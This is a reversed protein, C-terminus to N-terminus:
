GGNSPALLLSSVFCEQFEPDSGLPVHEIRSRIAAFTRDPEFLAMKAGILATNGAPEIREEPFPLLGIRRASARNIYNGFAGALFVRRIDEVRIGSRRALISIGAAIAGKALQLERVDAQTVTLGPALAIVCGNLKGSPKVLGLDLAAAVADVLGSGCIGRPEGGGIVSCRMEGGSLAVEWVAGTQARMGASIRGGEFAPGAATSACLLRERNGIVIEGNTGLDILAQTEASEHMGTALIGALIDSGVFGGLNPLFHVRLGGELEVEEWDLRPTEFPYHSLPEVSIGCFLHHMVTNGAIVVEPSDVPALDAILEAVRHRILATLDGGQLVHQIRSMIDAGHAAQPNLATRVGLVHATSLDLMQVVITTTGLDVAIGTGTRPKFRFQSHDSLIAAEFQAIELTCDREARARCALRWGAEIEAASLIAAEEPVPELAHDLVRVRCGRCRGKGGCPFEVGYAFLLDRLPTGAAAEV